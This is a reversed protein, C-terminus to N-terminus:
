DRPFAKQLQERDRNRQRDAVTEPEPGCVADVLSLTANTVWCDLADLLRWFCREMLGDAM